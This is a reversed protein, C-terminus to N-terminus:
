RLKLVTRFKLQLQMHLSIQIEASFFKSFRFTRMQKISLVKHFLARDPFELSIHTIELKCVHHLRSLSLSVWSFVSFLLRSWPSSHRTGAMSSFNMAWSVNLEVQITAWILHLLYYFLRVQNYHILSQKRCPHGLNNPKIAEWWM